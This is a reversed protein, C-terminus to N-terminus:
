LNFNINKEKKGKKSKVLLTELKKNMSNIGKGLSRSSALGAYPNEGTTSIYEDISPYSSASGTGGNDLLVAGFGRGRSHRMTSTKISGGSTTMVAKLVPRVM